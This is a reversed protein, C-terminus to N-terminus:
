PRTPEEDADNDAWTAPEIPPPTAFALDQLAQLRRLLRIAVLNAFPVIWWLVSKWPTTAPAGRGLPAVSAVMRHQWALWAIATLVFLVLQVLGFVGFQADWAALDADTAAGAAYRDLLSMGTISQAASLLSVALQIALGGVAVMSPSRASRALDRRVVPTDEGSSGDGTM